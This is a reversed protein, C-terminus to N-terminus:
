NTEGSVINSSAEGSFARPEDEIRQCVSLIRELERVTRDGNEGKGSRERRTSRMM